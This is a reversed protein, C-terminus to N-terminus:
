CKVRDGRRFGEMSACMSSHTILRFLTGMEKEIQSGILLQAVMNVLLHVVGVHLFSPVIFRWWQDPTDTTTLGHGCIDAIPCITTPPSSILGLHAFHV